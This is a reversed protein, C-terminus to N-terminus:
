SLAAPQFTRVAEDQESQWAQYDAILSAHTLDAAAHAASMQWPQLVERRPRVGAQQARREREKEADSDDSDDDRTPVTELPERPALPDLYDTQPKFFFEIKFHAPFTKHEKDKVAKDIDKKTLCLYPKHGQEAIFSTHFWVWCMKDRRGFRDRDVFLIKCDGRVLARVKWDVVDVPAGGGASTAGGGGVGDGSGESGSIQGPGGSRSGQGGQPQLAFQASDFICREGHFILFSPDCGGSVMDLKPIGTLRVHSLLLPVGAFNFPLGKDYYNQLYHHFYHVYRRQSPITVGQQNSTRSRGYYLLAADPNLCTGMYLLLCNHTIARDALVFRQDKSNVQIATFKAGEQATIGVFRSCLHGWTRSQVQELDWPVSHAEALAEVLGDFRQRECPHPAFQVEIREGTVMAICLKRLNIRDPRYECVVREVGDLSSAEAVWRNRNYSGLAIIVRPRCALAENMGETVLVREATVDAQLLARAKELQELTFAREGHANRSTAEAGLPNHLMYVIQVTTQAEARDVMPTVQVVPPISLDAVEAEEPAMTLTSPDFGVVGIAHFFTGVQGAFSSDASAAAREPCPCVGSPLAAKEADAAVEAREKADGERVAEAMDQADNNSETNSLMPISVYRSFAPTSQLAALKCAPIDFVDGNYLPRALGDSVAQDLWWLAFQRAYPVLAPPLISWVKHHRQYSQADYWSLSLQSHQDSLPPQVAVIPNANWRLSVLHNPTVVHSGRGYKVEYMVPSEGSQVAVVGLPGGSPDVLVTGLSVDRAPIAPGNYTAVLTSEELCSIM